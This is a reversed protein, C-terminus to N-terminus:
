AWRRGDNFIITLDNTVPDTTLARAPGRDEFDM